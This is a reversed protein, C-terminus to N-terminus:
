DDDIAKADEYDKGNITILARLAEPKLRRDIQEIHGDVFVANVFKGHPGPSLSQQAIWSEASIDVPSMWHVSQDKNVEIVVLTNAHGATIEALNRGRAPQLCGNEALIALYPTQGSLRNGLPCQYIRLATKNVENNVPDNWPKSLDIKEYLASQELYPLILTRWSHLPRGQEDVTYAPPLSGHEEAYSLLASGIQRLHNRCQMSPSRGRPSNVAPLLLAAVVSLIVLAVLLRIAESRVRKWGQKGAAGCAIPAVSPNTSM